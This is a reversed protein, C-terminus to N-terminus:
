CFYIKKKDLNQMEEIQLGSLFLLWKGVLMERILKRQGLM